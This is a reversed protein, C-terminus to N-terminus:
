EKGVVRLLEDRYREPLKKIEAILDPESRVSGARNNTSGILDLLCDTTNMGSRRLENGGDYVTCRANIMKTIRETVKDIQQVDELLRDFVKDEEATFARREYEVCDVLNEAAELKEAREESLRKLERSNAVYQNGYM